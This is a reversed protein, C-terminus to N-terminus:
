QPNDGASKTCCVAAPTAEQRVKDIVHGENELLGKVISFLIQFFM